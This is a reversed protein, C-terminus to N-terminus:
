CHHLGMVGVDATIMNVSIISDHCKGATARAKAEEKKEEDTAHNVLSPVFYYM